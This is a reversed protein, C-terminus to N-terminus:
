KITFNTNCFAVSAWDSNGDEPKAELNLTINLECTRYDINNDSGTGIKYSYRGACKGERKVFDTNDNTEEGLGEFNGTKLIYKISDVSEGMPIGEINKYEKNGSIYSKEGAEVGDKTIVFGSPDIAEGNSDKISIVAELMTKTTKESKNEIEFTLDLMEKYPKIIVPGDAEGTTDEIASINKINVISLDNVEMSLGMDMGKSLKPIEGYIFMYGLISSLLIIFVICIWVMSSRKVKITM